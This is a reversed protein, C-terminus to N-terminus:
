GVHRLEEETPQIGAEEAVRRTQLTRGAAQVRAEMREVKRLLDFDERMAEAKDKALEAMIKITNSFTVAARMSTDIVTFIRIPM